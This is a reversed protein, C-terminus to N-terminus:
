NWVPLAGQLKLPQQYIEGHYQQLQLQQQLVHKQQKQHRRQLMKFNQVHVSSGSSEPVIFFSDAAAQDFFCQQQQQKQMLLEKQENDRQPAIATAIAIMPKDDVSVTEVALSTRNKGYKKLFLGCANCLAHKKDLTRRWFPTSTAGCDHCTLGKLQERMKKAHAKAKRKDTISEVGNETQLPFLRKNNTQSDGSVINRSFQQQPRPQPRPQAQYYCSNPNNPMTVTTIATHAPLPLPSPVLQQHYLQQLQYQPRHQEVPMQVSLSIDHLHLQQHQMPQQQQQENQRQSENQCLAPASVANGGTEQNTGIGVLGLEGFVATSTGESFCEYDNYDRNFLWHGHINTSDLLGYSFHLSPDANVIEFLSLDLNNSSNGNGATGSDIATPNNM